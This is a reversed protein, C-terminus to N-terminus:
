ATLRSNHPTARPIWFPNRRSKAKCGAQTQSIDTMKGTKLYAKFILSGHVFFTYQLSFLMTKSSQQQRPGS